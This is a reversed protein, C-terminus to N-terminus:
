HNEKIFLKNKRNGEEFEFSATVYIDMWGDQNIDVVSVGLSWIDEAGIGARESINEFNFNGRNLYLANPVKNGAFYLDNLGDNNFDGIGVGGGNYLYESYLINFTDTEEIINNFLIGTKEPPLLSFLNASSNKCGSSVLILM